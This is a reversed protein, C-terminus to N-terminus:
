LLCITLCNYLSSAAVLISDSSYSGTISSSADGGGLRVFSCFCYSQRNSTTSEVRGWVMLMLTSKLGNNLSCMSWMYIGSTGLCSLDNFTCDVMFRLAICSSKCDYSPVSM